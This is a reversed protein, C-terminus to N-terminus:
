NARQTRFKNFQYMEVVYLAFEFLLEFILIFKFVVTTSQLESYDYQQGADTASTSLYGHNLAQIVLFAIGALFFDILLGTGM